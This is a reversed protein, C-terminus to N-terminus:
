SGNGNVETVKTLKNFFMHINREIKCEPPQIIYIFRPEQYAFAMDCPYDWNRFMKGM